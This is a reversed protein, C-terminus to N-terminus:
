SRLETESIELIEGYSMEGEIEHFYDLQADRDELSEFHLRCSGEEDWEEVRECALGHAANFAGEYSKYVGVDSGHKHTYTLTWVKEPGNGDLDCVPGECLPCDIERHKSM